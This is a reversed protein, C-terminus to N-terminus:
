VECVARDAGGQEGSPYKPNRALEAGFSKIDPYGMKKVLTLMEAEDLKVQDLGIQHIEAPTKDLTTSRKVCFAYTRTM